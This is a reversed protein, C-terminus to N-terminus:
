LDRTVLLNFRNEGSESTTTAVSYHHYDPCQPPTPLRKKPKRQEHIIRPKFSSSSSTDGRPNHNDYARFEFDSDADLWSTSNPCSSFTDYYIDDDESESSSDSICNVVQNPRLILDDEDGHLSETEPNFLSNNLFSKFTSKSMANNSNNNNCHIASEQQQLPICITNSRPEGINTSSVNPTPIDKNIQRLLHSDSRTKREHEQLLSSIPKLHSAYIKDVSASSKRFQQHNQLSEDTLSQFFKTKEKFEKKRDSQQHDEQIFLHNDYDSHHGNISVHIRNDSSPSSSSKEWEYSIPIVREKFEVPPEETMVQEIQAKIDNNGGIHVVTSSNRRGNKRHRLPTIQVTSEPSIM